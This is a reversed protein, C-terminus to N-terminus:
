PGTVTVTVNTEKVLRGVLGEPLDFGLETGTTKAFFTETQGNTEIKGGGPLTQVSDGRTATSGGVAAPMEVWNINIVGCPGYSSTLTLNCTDVNLAATMNGSNVSGTSVTFSSAPILGSGGASFGGGFDIVNYNLLYGSHTTIVEVEILESFDSNFFGVVPVVAHTVVSSGGAQAQVPISSLVAAGVALGLATLMTRGFQKM